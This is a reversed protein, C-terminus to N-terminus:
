DQVKVMSSTIDVGTMKKVTDPLSSMIDLVEQTMRNAGVPGDGSAVMTIKKTQSIPGSVEAAVQPLVKLMMDVMAAEKYEKFAEAKKNMQEAEAKAKVEIAYAEAEGRLAVAEAEAEAELVTKLKTAEAIKELKFKEAEAPKRVKSDLEKERRLIEQEQIAINQQREVVKVQMEEGM